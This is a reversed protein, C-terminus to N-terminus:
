DFSVYNNELMYEATKEIHSRNLFLPKENLIKDRYDDAVYNRYKEILQPSNGVIECPEGKKLLEVAKRYENWGTIENNFRFLEKWKQPTMDDYGYGLTGLYEFLEPQVTEDWAIDTWMHFLYGKLFDQNGHYKHKNDKYFKRLNEKWKDYDRVRIHSRYRIEESAQSTGYNVCDPSIAGLLFDPKNGIKLRDFLM